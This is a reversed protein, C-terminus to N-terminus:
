SEISLNSRRRLKETEEKDVEFKDPDIVVGYESRGREISILGELVDWRVKDPDRELPNGWGGGGSTVTRFSDGEKVRRTIKSPIQTEQGNQILLGKANAAEKGGFAGWPHIKNRDSSVTITSEPALFTFERQMGVGGRFKGPGESDPVLGYREVRLPYTAEIVEVPANRTNTMHSHVGDMGDQCYFAGQGGGYTEIYNYLRKTRPNTGGINLLNQTGHHAAMVRQPVAELFAGLLTDVIRHTTIINSHVTSHPYQSDLISGEPAIVHIPRYAGSNPPIGPDVICKLVYYVCAATSAKRCNLPGQVQPSSGTFDALVEDGKVEVRVKIKILDETFSDGEMYDEFGYTGDPIRRIGERMRRESYNMIERLYLLVTEEGYKTVLELFRREGVNNSAVQALLDGRFEIKTRVNDSILSAIEEDIVDKKVIKVPPIQLGEQFTETVGFPMSGPAYGGVDVHHAQNAVLAVAKGKYFVPSVLTIDNLHGPGAPYTENMIIDDGPDMKEPPFRKLVTDVVAPMVGLHLPTGIESQAVVEGSTLYIACSCDRRDKINTSYATRILAASMEDSVSYLANRIVELTIPDIKKKIAEKKM